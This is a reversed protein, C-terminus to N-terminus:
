PDIEVTVAHFVLDVGTIVLILAVIERVFLFCPNIVTAKVTVTM